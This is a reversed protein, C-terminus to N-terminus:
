EVSKKAAFSRLSCLLIAARRTKMGRGFMGRGNRASEDEDEDEDEFYFGGASTEDRM